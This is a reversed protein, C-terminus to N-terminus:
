AGVGQIVFRVLSYASFIVVLGIVAWIFIDKGKKVQEASGASTLWLSGVIGFISNIVQGVLAQPSEIGSLPNDLTVIGTTPTNNNVGTQNNTNDNQGEQALVLLPLFLLILLLSIFLKKM